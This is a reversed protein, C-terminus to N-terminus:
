EQEREDYRRNAPHEIMRIADMPVFRQVKVVDQSVKVIKVAATQTLQTRNKDASVRTTRGRIEKQSKREHSRKTEVSDYRPKHSESTPTRAAPENVQSRATHGACGRCDHCDQDKTQRGFYDRCADEEARFTRKKKGCRCHEVESGKVPAVFRLM